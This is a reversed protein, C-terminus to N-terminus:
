DWSAAYWASQWSSGQWSSGQWSSGQWSSGQWSSGQWSSGQWSSGAWTANQWSSGQWSSGNWTTAQWSSGQWSSGQWSSAQWSSGQWSSGQWSSADWGTTSYDLAVFPVLGAPNGLGAYAPDTQAVYEGSVKVAGAPGVVEIGLSGRDSGISGLGNSRALGNNAADTSTSTAAAHADVLGHGAAIPNGEAIPRASAILRYKVQDPTLEPNRQLIQAVVGSVTATAMSTGTGRFYDGSVVATAGYKQDIASGPSRLSVTHVGPSVIDPKAFGNARTPGRASFIPVTDDGISMSGEDDSAGVTIIFPDDGPKMVTSANPGTNGGSAVVVIGARWAKEVAYNLPSFRYDQASDTGLSLNLVRIGYEDRHAVAWQIGALVNSVDSSGDYGAVKVSVLNADPAAGVYKGNSASGDGAILGAMFTGHGFTDACHAETTEEHSFDECHLVRGALDPHAAHIGTDLVAVTIGSGTTGEQWLSTSRVVKQIRHTVQSGDGTGHFGVPADPTISWIGPVRALEDLAAPRVRAEVSDFLPLPTVVRGGVSRVAARAVSVADGRVIVSVASEFSPASPSVVPGLGAAMLSVAVALLAARRLSRPAPVGHPLPARVASQL